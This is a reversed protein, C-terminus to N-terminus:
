QMSEVVGSSKIVCEQQTRSYLVNLWCLARWCVALPGKQYFQMSILIYITCEYIKELCLFVRKELTCVTNFLLKISIFDPLSPTLWWLVNFFKATRIPLSSPSFHTCMRLKCLTRFYMKLYPLPTFNYLLWKKRGKIRLVCDGKVFVRCRCGRVREHTPFLM